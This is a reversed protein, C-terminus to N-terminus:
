SLAIGYDGGLRIGLEEVSLPDGIGVRVLHSDSDAVALAYDQQPAMLVKSINGPLNLGAGVTLAGSIGQVPQLGIAPDFVFGIVPGAMRTEAALSQLLVYGLVLWRTVLM